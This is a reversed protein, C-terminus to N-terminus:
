CRWAKSVDFGGIELRTIIQNQMAIRDRAEDIQRDAERLKLKVNM